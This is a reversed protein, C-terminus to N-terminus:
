SLLVSCVQDVSAVKGTQNFWYSEPRLIKVQMWGVVSSLVLSMCLQESAIAISCRDHRITINTHEVGDNSCGLCGLRIDVTSCGFLARLATYKM